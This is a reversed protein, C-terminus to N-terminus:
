RRSNKGTAARWMYIRPLTQIQSDAMQTHRDRGRQKESAREKETVRETDLHTDLNPTSSTRETLSLGHVDRRHAPIVAVSATTKTRLYLSLESSSTSRLSGTRCASLICAGALLRMLVRRYTCRPAKRSQCICKHLYILLHMDYICILIGITIFKFVIACCSGFM